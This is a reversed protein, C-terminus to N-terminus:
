APEAYPSHSLLEDRYAHLAQNERVLADAIAARFRRDAVYHFSHTATPLFGRALKHEGQAGPEFRRLGHHLCYDIGQYYCV